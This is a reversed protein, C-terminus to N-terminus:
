DPVLYSCNPCPTQKREEPPLDLWWEHIAHIISFLNCDEDDTPLGLFHKMYDQQIAYGSELLVKM